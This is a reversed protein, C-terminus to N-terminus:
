KKWFMLKDALTKKQNQRRKRYDAVYRALLDKLSLFQRVTKIQAIQRRLNAGINVPQKRGGAGVIEDVFLSPAQKVLEDFKALLQKKIQEVIEFEADGVTNMAIVESPKGLPLREILAVYHSVRDRPLFPPLLHVLRILQAKTDVATTPISAPKPEPEPETAVAPEPKKRPVPPASGVTITLGPQDLCQGVLQNTHEICEFLGMPTADAHDIQDFLEAKLRLYDDTDLGHKTVAADLVETVARKKEADFTRRKEESM